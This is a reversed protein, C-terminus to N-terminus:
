RLVPGEGGNSCVTKFVADTQMQLSRDASYHLNINEFPVAEMHHQQLATVADLAADGNPGQRLLLRTSQPLSIRYLYAEVQEPSLLSEM